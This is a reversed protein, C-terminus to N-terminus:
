CIIGETLIFLHLRWDIYVFLVKLRHRWVSWSCRWRELTCRSWQKEEFSYIYYSIFYLNMFMRSNHTFMHIKTYAAVVCACICTRLLTVVILAVSHVHVFSIDWIYALMVCFVVVTRYTRFVWVNVTGFSSIYRM